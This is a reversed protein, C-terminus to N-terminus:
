YTTAPTSYICYDSGGILVAPRGRRRLQNGPYWQCQLLYADPCTTPASMARTPRSLRQAIKCELIRDTTPRGDGVSTVPSRPRKSSAARDINLMFDHEPHALMQNVRQIKRDPAKQCEHAVVAELVTGWYM